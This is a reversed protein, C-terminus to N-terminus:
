ESGFQEPVEDRHEANIPDFDRVFLLLLDKMATRLIRNSASAAGNDVSRKDTFKLPPPERGVQNASQAIARGRRGAAIAEATVEGTADQQSLEVIRSDRNGSMGEEVIVLWRPRESLLNLGFFPCHSPHVDVIRSRHSISGGLLADEADIWPISVLLQQRAAHTKRGAMLFQRSACSSPSM